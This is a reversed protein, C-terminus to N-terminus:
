IRKLHRLTTKTQRLCITIGNTQMTHKLEKQLINILCFSICNLSVPETPDFIELDVM